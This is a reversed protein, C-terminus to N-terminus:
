NQTYIPTSPHPNSPKLTTIMVIQRVNAWLWRCGGVGDYGCGQEVNQIEFNWTKSIKNERSKSLLEFSSINPSRERSIIYPSLMQFVITQTFFPRNHRHLKLKWIQKLYLCKLDVTCSKTQIIIKRRGLRSIILDEVQKSSFIPKKVIKLCIKM